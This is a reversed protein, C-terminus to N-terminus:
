LDRVLRGNQLLLRVLDVQRRTGTKDFVATLHTRVTTPAIGLQAAAAKLGQSNLLQLAVVAEMRTLGYDQQIIEMTSGEAREPDAIFLMAVPRSPQLWDNAARLPVVLGTLSARLEGRSLRVSGGSDFESDMADRAACAVLRHLDITEDHQRSELVGDVGSYLGAGDALIVEAARNAFMVRCSADVLLVAQRLRDLLEASADRAMQLAALRQNLKLARQLHPVISALLKSDTTNFAGGEARRWLGFVAWDAKGRLLISGIREHLGHPAFFGNYIATRAFSDHPILDHISFIQGTQLHAAREILPNQHVWYSVYESLAEPPMRPAIDAASHTRLDFTSIQGIQAGVLDTLGDIVSSWLTQDLAAEYILEILKACQDTRNM